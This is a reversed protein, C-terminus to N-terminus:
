NGREARLRDRKQERWVDDGMRGDGLARHCGPRTFTTWRTLPLGRTGGGRFQTDAAPRHPALCVLHFPPEGQGSQCPNVRAVNMEGLVRYGMSQIAHIPGKPPPPSVALLGPLFPRRGPSGIGTQGSRVGMASPRNRVGGVLPPRGIGPPPAVRSRGRVRHVVNM